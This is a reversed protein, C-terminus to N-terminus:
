IEGPAHQRRLRPQFLDFLASQADLVWRDFIENESVTGLEDAICSADSRHWGAIEDLTTVGLRYLAAQTEDDIGPIITLNQEDKRTESLAKDDSPTHKVALPVPRGSRPTPSPATPAATTGDGAHLPPAETAAEDSEFDLWDLLTDFESLPGPAEVTEEEAPLAFDAFPHVPAPPPEPEFTSSFAETPIIFNSPPDADFPGEWAPPADPVEDEAIPWEAEGASEDAEVIPEDIEAASEIVEEHRDTSSAPLAAEFPDAFVYDKHPVFAFPTDPAAGAPLYDTAPAHAVTDAAADLAVGDLATGTEEDAPDPLHTKANAEITRRLQSRLKRMEKKQCEIESRTHDELEQIRRACADLQIELDDFLPDASM